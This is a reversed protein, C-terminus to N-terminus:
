FFPRLMWPRLLYANDGFVYYQIGNVNLCNSFLEEWGSEHFLTLYHRRGVVPGYLAFMLGDPTSLTQYFLCHFRKHGSFCSRQLTGHGGPRQMRIKTCDIFGVCKHLPAGSEEIANAYMNATSSLLDSRLELLNGYDSTFMEPTELFIESMQSSFLGFKMEMDYWRKTTALRHLMVCTATIPEYRYENRTTVGVGILLDVYVASTTM